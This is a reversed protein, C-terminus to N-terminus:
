KPIPATSYKSESVFTVERKSSRDGPFDPDKKIVAQVEVVYDFSKGFYLTFVKASKQRWVILMQQLIGACKQALKETQVHYM